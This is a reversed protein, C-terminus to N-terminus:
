RTLSMNKYQSQPISLRGDPKWNLEAATRQIYRPALGPNTFEGRKLLNLGVVGVSVASAIMADKHPEWWLSGLLPTFQVRNHVWGEGFMMTREHISQAVTELSAVQDETLRKLEEGVWQFLAWYVEGTRARVMPCIPGEVGRVNWAMAELTPVAVLPLDTVFRFGALTSLGVRLGTFSGPGISVALGDLDVFRVHLTSLLRDITPVLWRTHSGAADADSQALVRDEDLIAVSQCSTATEVALM